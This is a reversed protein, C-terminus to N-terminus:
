RSQGGGNFFDDVPAFETKFRPNGEAIKRLEACLKQASTWAEAQAKRISDDIRQQVLFAERYITKLREALMFNEEMREVSAGEAVVKHKRALHAVAAAAGEGGPLMKPLAEREPPQLVTTFEQLKKDASRLEEIIKELEKPTPIKVTSNTEV